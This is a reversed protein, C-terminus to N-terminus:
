PVESAHCCARQQRSAGLVASSAPAMRRTAHTASWMAGRRHLATVLCCAARAEALGEGPGAGAHPPRWRRVARCTPVSACVAIPLMRFGGSDTAFDPFFVFACRRVRPLGGPRRCVRAHVGRVAAVRAGGAAARACVGGLARLGRVRLAGGRQARAAWRGMSNAVQVGERWLSQVPLMVRGVQSWLLAGELCQRSQGHHAWSHQTSAWAVCRSSPFSTRLM